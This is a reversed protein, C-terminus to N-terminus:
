AVHSIFEEFKGGRGPLGDRFYSFRLPFGYGLAGQIIKGLREEQEASLTKEVALRVEVDDLRHQVLQYQLIPAVERFFHVGVLPWHREGNPLVVMNRQRGLIRALTPLSRGCPCPPGVEAYDRTDYRILPTAFNHMDTIVIRGTEGPLCARGDDDLVEVLLSESQIHYLGSEPCQLAITGVEESSYLDVVGAGLTVRSRVRLEGSLTEGITRVERLRQPARGLREFCDLLAALNTPYTLLYEPDRQLLWEAQLAVDTSLPRVYAPGSDFLLSVPLGWGNRRAEEPNDVVPAMARVVAMSTGFDRRHWFHDRMALAMRTLHNVETRRVAVPQGTSGSSKAEFTAGHETPIGRCFIDGAHLLLEARTLLPVQRLLEPSWNARPSVGASALRNGFFPSQKRAHRILLGLQHYQREAIQEHPWWQSSELQYMQALLTAGQKGPLAPWVIGTAVSRIAPMTSGAATSFIM